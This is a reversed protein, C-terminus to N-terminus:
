RSVPAADRAVAGHLTEVHVPVGHERDGGDAVAIERRPMRGNISRGDATFAAAETM